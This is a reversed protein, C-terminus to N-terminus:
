KLWAVYEDAYYHWASSAREQCTIDEGAFKMTRDITVSKVTDEKLYSWYLTILTADASVEYNDVAGSEQLQELQALEVSM